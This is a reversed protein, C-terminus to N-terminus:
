KTTIDMLYIDGDNAEFVVQSANADPFMAIMNDPTLAVRESGDARAAYIRSDTTMVNGHDEMGVLWQDDIWRPARLIGLSVVNGGDLDCVYTGQGSVTYAVRTMDPSLVPWIYRTDADTGQPALVSVKGRNNLIIRCDKSTVKVAAQARAPQATAHAEYGARPADSLVKVDGTAANVAKLGTYDSGSVLITGDSALVPHYSAQPADVKRMNSAVIGQASMALTGVAMAAILLIKKM